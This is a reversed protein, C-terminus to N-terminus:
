CLSADGEVFVCKFSCRSWSNTVARFQFRTLHGEIFFPCINNDENLPIHDLLSFSCVITAIAVRIFTVFMFHAFSALVWPHWRSGNICLEFAAFSVLSSSTLITTVSPLSLSNTSTPQSTSQPTILGETSSPAPSMPTKRTFATLQVSLVQVSRSM